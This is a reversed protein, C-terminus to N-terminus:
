EYIDVKLDTLNSNSMRLYTKKLKSTESDKPEKETRWKPTSTSTVHNKGRTQM